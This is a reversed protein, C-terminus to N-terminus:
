MKQINKQNFEIKVKVFILLFFYLTDGGGM